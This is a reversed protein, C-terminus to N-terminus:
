RPDTISSANENVSLLDEPPSQTKRPMRQDELELPNCSEVDCSVSRARVVPVRLRLLYVPDINSEFAARARCTTSTRTKLIVGHLMHM